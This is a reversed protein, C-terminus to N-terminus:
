RGTNIRALKAAYLDRDQRTTSYELALALHRRALDPEGSRLHAIGLWFHFEHYGPDRAVERAFEDRAARADGSQLAALGRRFHVFPPNRDVRDREAAVRRADDHRGLAVLVPVLNALASANGPEADLVHRFVREADAADGHRAYVAGLTNYALLLGPAQVIAERAWWYADDVRGATLAEVARNNLYMGLVVGEPIPQTRLAQADSPPLFDITTAGPDRARAAVLRPLNGDLGPRHGITVNVHGILLYLEGARAWSEDVDAKGFEVPLDLARAFAATMIVLSLCNGSRAAFAEAANRTIEADYELRLGGTRFLADVLARRAGKTRAAEAIEERLYRRMEESLAFVADARIPEDPAAFLRDNFLRAAPEGPARLPASACAALCLALLAVAFRRMAHEQRDHSRGRIRPAPRAGPFDPVRERRPPPVPWSPDTRRHGAHLADIPAVAAISGTSLQSETM